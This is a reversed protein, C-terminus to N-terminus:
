SHDLAKRKEEFEAKSIEGRAYREELIERASKGRSGGSQGAIWRALAVIALIILAWWIVMGIGGWWGTGYPFFGMM